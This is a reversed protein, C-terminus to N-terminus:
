RGPGPGPGVGPRFVLPGREAAPPIRVPATAGYAFTASLPPVGDELSTLDARVLHLDDDVWLDYTTPVERLSPTGETATVRLHRTLVGGTSTELGLDTLDPSGVLTAFRAVPDRTAMGYVVFGGVSSGPETCSHPADSAVVQGVANNGLAQLARGAARNVCVRGGPLQVQERATGDETWSFRRAAVIWPAEAPVLDITLEVPGSVVTSLGGAARVEELLAERLAFTDTRLAGSGLPHALSAPVSPAAPAATPPAPSPAASRDSGSGCAVLAWLASAALVGVLPASVPRHRRERDAM